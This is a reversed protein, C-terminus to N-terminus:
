RRTASSAHCFYSRADLASLFVISPNSSRGTYPTPCENPANTVTSMPDLYSVFRRPFTNIDNLLLGAVSAIGSKASSKAGPNCPSEGM